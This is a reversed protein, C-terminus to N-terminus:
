QQPYPITFYSSKTASPGPRYAQGTLRADIHAKGFSVLFLDYAIHLIAMALFNLKTREEKQACVRILITILNRVFSCVFFAVWFFWSRM